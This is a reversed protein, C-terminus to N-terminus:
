VFRPRDISIFRTGFFMSLITRTVPAVSGRWREASQVGAGGGLYGM